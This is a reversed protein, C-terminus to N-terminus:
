QMSHASFHSYQSHMPSTVVAGTGGLAAMEQIMRSTDAPISSQPTSSVATTGPIAPTADSQLDAGGVGLSQAAQQVSSPTLAVQIESSTPLAAPAAGRASSQPASLSTASKSTGSSKPTAAGYLLQAAEIDSQDLTQNASGAGYYMVSSQDSDDGLGIAHGIEHLVVQYFSAGTGAYTLQGGSGAVFGTEGPNELSISTGAQFTGNSATYSTFGLVGSSATDFSKFGLTIDPTQSSSVEQFTIGSVQAWANFARVIEAKEESSFNTSGFSWTVPGAAWRVGELETGLTSTGNASALASQYAQNLALNDTSITTSAAASLKADFGSVADVGSMASLKHGAVFDYGFGYGGYGGSGGESPTSGNDSAGVGNSTDGTYNGGYFTVQDGASGYNTDNTGDIAITDDTSDYVKDYTGNVSDQTDKSYYSVSSSYADAINGSGSINLLGAGAHLTNDAGIVTTSFGSNTGLTFDTGTASWYDNSGNETVTDKASGYASVSSGNVWGQASGQFFVGVGEGNASTGGALLNSGNITTGNGNTGGIVVSDNPNSSGGPLFLQNGSGYVGTADGTSLYEKNWSGNVNAQSNAGLTITSGSSSSSNVTDFNGNTGSITVSAPGTNNITDGGGVINETEGSKLTITANSVDIQGNVPTIAPNGGTTPTSGQQFTGASVTSGDSTQEQWSFAGSGNSITHDTPNPDTVNNGWHRPKDSITRRPM